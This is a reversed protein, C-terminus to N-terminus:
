APRGRGVTDFVFRRDLRYKFAYGIALGVIAGMERATHTEWYFWFLTETGWFIATTVVGMLTYISLKRGHAAIGSSRDGFIWRKDLVYKVLLGVVTGAFLAVYFAAAMGFLNLVLRQVALNIITAVIAFAVYRVALAARGISM